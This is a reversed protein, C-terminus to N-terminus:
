CTQIWKHTRSFPPHPIDWVSLEPFNNTLPKLEGTIIMEDISSVLQLPNQISAVENESSWLEIYERGAARKSVSPWIWDTAQEIKAIHTKYSTRSNGNMKIALQYNDFIYRCWKENTLISAQLSPTSELTIIVLDGKRIGIDHSSVHAHKEFIPTEYCLCNSIIQLEGWSRIWKFLNQKEEAANPRTDDPWISLLIKSKKHCSFAVWSLWRYYIDLYWPPDMVVNQFTTGIFPPEINIDITLHKKVEQIPHRDILLYPRFSRALLSAISPTGLCLVTQSDCLNVLQVSTDYSFRWDYDLPHPDPRSSFM